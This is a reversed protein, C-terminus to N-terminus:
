QEMGREVSGIFSGIAEGLGDFGVHYLTVGAWIILALIALKLLIVFVFMFGVM